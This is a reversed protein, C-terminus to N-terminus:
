DRRPVHGKKALLSVMRENPKWAVLFPRTWDEQMTPVGKSPASGTILLSYRRYLQWEAELADDLDQYTATPALGKDDTHAM